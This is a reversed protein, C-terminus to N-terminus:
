CRTAAGVQFSKPETRFFGGASTSSKANGKEHIIYQEWLGPLTLVRLVELVVRRCDKVKLYM